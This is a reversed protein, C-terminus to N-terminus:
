PILSGVAHGLGRFGRAVDDNSPLMDPVPVGLLRRDEAVRPDAAGAEAGRPALGAVIAPPEPFRQDASLRADIAGAQFDGDDPAPATEVPTAQPAAAAVKPRDILRLPVPPTEAVRPRAPPLAAPKPAEEPHAAAVFAPAGKDPEPALLTAIDATEPRPPEAVISTYHIYLTTAGAVCATTVVSAVVETFFRSVFGGVREAFTEVPHAM